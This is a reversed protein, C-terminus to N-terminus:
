VGLGMIEETSSALAVRLVPVYGELQVEVMRALQYGTPLALLCQPRDILVTCCEAQDLFLKLAVTASIAVGALDYLDSGRLAGSRLPQSRLAGRVDGGFLAANAAALDLAAQTEAYFNADLVVLVYAPCTAYDLLELRGRWLWYMYDAAAGAWQVVCLPMTEPLDNPDVAAADDAVLYLGGDDDAVCAAHAHLSLMRLTGSKFDILFGGAANFGFFLENYFVAMDPAYQPWSRAGFLELEEGANFVGSHDMRMWGAPARWYVGDRRAVTARKAVCPYFQGDFSSRAMSDPWQGFLRAPWGETLVATYDGFPALCVPKYSFAKRYAPPWAHPKFPESMCVMNGSIGALAGCALLVLGTLGDPPPYYTAASFVGGLFEVAEGATFNGPAWAGPAHASTCEYLAGAYVAYEGPAFAREASFYFAECVFQYAAYSSTGANTRYLWIRDIARGEPAAEIGSVTVRGTDYDSLAAVPSNVGVEGYRNVFSYFYYREESGSAGVRAVAPASAPVPIGLLLYDSAPNFGDEHVNDNAFFRVENEGSFYVREYADNEIPSKVYDRETAATVWHGNGNEVYRYLSKVVADPLAAVRRPAKFPRLEGSALDCNQAAQAENAGLLHAARAPRMGSFTRLSIMM